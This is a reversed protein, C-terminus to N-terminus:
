YARSFRLICLVRSDSLATLYIGVRRLDPTYVSLTYAVTAKHDRCVIYLCTNSFIVGPCILATEHQVHYIYIATKRRQVTEGARFYKGQDNVNSSTSKIQQPKM